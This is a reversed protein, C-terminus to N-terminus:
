RGACRVSRSLAQGRLRRRNVMNSKWRSRWDFSTLEAGKRAAEM